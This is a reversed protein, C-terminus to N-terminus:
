LENDVEANPCQISLQIKREESLPLVAERLLNGDMPQTYGHMLNMQRGDQELYIMPITADAMSDTLDRNGASQIYSMGLIGLFFAVLISLIKLIAKKM